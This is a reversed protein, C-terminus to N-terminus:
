KNKNVVKSKPKESEVLSTDSISQSREIERVRPKAIEQKRVVQDNKAEFVPRV